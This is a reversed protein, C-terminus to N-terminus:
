YEHVRKKRPRACRRATPTRRLPPALIGGKGLRVWVGFTIFLNDLESRLPNASYKTRNRLIDSFGYYYRASACFEVRGAFVSLGGGGCLGYGMRCDRATMFGYRYRDTVGDRKTGTEVYSDGLNYSFTIGAEIFVRAHRNFLYFHPQWLIPVTISNVTRRYYFPPTRGTASITCTAGKSTNWSPEWAASCRSLATINGRLAM